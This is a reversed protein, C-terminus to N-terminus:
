LEVLWNGNATQTYFDAESLVVVDKADFAPVDGGGGGCYVAAVLLVALIAVRM